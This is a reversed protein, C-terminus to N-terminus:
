TQKTWSAERLQSLAIGYGLSHLEDLLAQTILTKRADADGGFDTSIKAIRQDLAQRRERMDFVHRVAQEVFAAFAGLPVRGELESWLELEVRAVLDEPLSVSKEVPRIAKAPRGRKGAM